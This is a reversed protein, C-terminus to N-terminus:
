RVTIPTWRRGADHTIWIQHRYTGHQLAYATTTSTAQASLSFGAGALSAAHNLSPSTHWSRGRDRSICIDMRGGSLMITGRATMSAHGLYGGPPPSTARHWTRGHDHSLFATKLQQGAGPETGCGLFLWGGPAAALAMSWAGRCPSRLPRWRGPGNVPGTLLLPTGLDPTTAFLYGARGSVILAAPSATHGDAGPVPRWAGSRARSTYLQFRCQWLGAQGCRGAAALVRGGAVALSQVPGRGISVRRWRAGGDRTQWLGPGFAWGDRSSTFLIAGVAGPQGQYPAPPAPVAVWTRGGDATKRLLLEQCRRPVTSACPPVALLWGASVSIFSASVPALRRGGALLGPRAVAHGAALGAALGAAPGHRAPVPRGCSVALLLATVVMVVSLPRPVWARGSAIPIGTM